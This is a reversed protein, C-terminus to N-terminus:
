SLGFDREEKINTILYNYEESHNDRTILKYEVAMPNKKVEKIFSVDEDTEIYLMYELEARESAGGNLQISSGHYTTKTNITTYGRSSSQESSEHSKTIPELKRSFGAISIVLIPKYVSGSANGENRIDFLTKFTFFSSKSINRGGFWTEVFQSGV